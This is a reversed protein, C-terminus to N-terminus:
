SLDDFTLDSDSLGRPNNIRMVTEELSSLSEWLDNWERGALKMFEESQEQPIGDSFKSLIGIVKNLVIQLEKFTPASAWVHENLVKKVSEAVIQRLTNENIKVVNKKMNKNTKSEKAIEQKSSLTKPKAARKLSALPDVYEGKIIAEFMAKVIGNIYKQRIFKSQYCYQKVSFPHGLENQGEFTQPICPEILCGECDQQSPCDKTIDQGEDIFVISINICHSPDLLREKSDELHTRDVWTKLYTGHNSLRIQVPTTGRKSSLYFSTGNDNSIFTGINYQQSRGKFVALIQSIIDSSVM